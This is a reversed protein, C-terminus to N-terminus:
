DKDRMKKSKVYIYSECTIFPTGNPHEGKSYVFKITEIGRPKFNFETLIGDEREITIDM